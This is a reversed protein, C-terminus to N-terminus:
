LVERLSVSDINFAAGDPLANGLFFTIRGDAATTDATFNITYSKWESSIYLGSYPPAYPTWPSAAQTLKISPIVFSTDCKAKFTLQYTKGNTIALPMTFLQVSNQTNGNDACRIRYSAPATDYYVADLSGDAQATSDNSCYWKAAGIDFSPNPLLEDEPASNVGIEKLSLTDIHFAGGEPLAGGLFFTLRADSATFNSTFIVAYNQWAGPLITLNPYPNAYDAWPSMSQNLKISPIIFKHSSKAQFTLLYNRGQILNFRSTFLQIDKYNNGNNASQIKFSAPATDYDVTDWIAVASAGNQVTCYWYASDSDFSPNPLIQDTRTIINTVTTSRKCNDTAIVTFKNDGVDLNYVKNVVVEHPDDPNNASIFDVAAGNVTITSIQNDDTATVHLTIAQAGTSTGGAPTVTLAPPGSDKYVYRTNSATKGLSNTVVVKIQNPGNSLPVSVYFSVQFPESLNGTSQYTVPEGNVTIGTIDNSGSAIGSVTVASDYTYLEPTPSEITLSPGGITIESTAGAEIDVQRPAFTITSGNVVATTYATYTGEPGVIAARGIQVPTSSGYGYVQCSKILRNVGDYSEMYGSIQPSYVLSGDDSTFEIIVTGLGLNFDNGEYKGGGSVTIPNNLNSTRTYDYYYFNTNLYEAPNSSANEFGVNGIYYLDWAGPTLFLRYEGTSKNIGNDYAEGGYTNTDYIGNAYVYPSTSVDSITKTGYLNLRGKIMAPAAAINIVTEGGSALNIRGYPDNPNSYYFPWRLQQQYNNFYSIMNISKLTGAQEGEIRFPGDQNVTVIKKSSLRHQSLAGELLPAYSITGSITGTLLNPFAGSWTLSVTEGPSPTFEKKDLTFTDYKGTDKPYAYGYSWKYAINAPILLSHSGTKSITPYCNLSCTQSYFYVRLYSWDDNSFSADVTLTALDWSFNETYTNDKVVSLTRRAGPEFSVGSKLYIRAYATYDRTSGNEPANVTLTYSGDSQVQVNASFGGDAVAYVYASSVVDSYTHGNISITGHIYAPFLYVGDGFIVFPCLLLIIFALSLILLRKNM